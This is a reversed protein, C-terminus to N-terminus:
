KGNKSTRLWRLYDHFWAELGKRDAATWARSGELLGAADVVKLLSVTDIIGTGRGETLGPIFQGYNLHPNMRTGPDLFWVRLLKAAHEAYAEEGTLYWALGLTGVAATMKKLLPGDYKDREPNVKGDKRVYPLGDKKAPDPWFYPAMSVYDHKDGSPAPQPKNNIVITYPGAKLEKEAARRLAAGGAGGER